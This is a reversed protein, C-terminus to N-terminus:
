SLAFWALSSSGAPSAVVNLAIAALAVANDASLVIELVILVPLLTLIEGWQDAGDFVNSLSPLATLDM